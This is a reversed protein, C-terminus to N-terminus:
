PLAQGLSRVLKRRFVGSQSLILFFFFAKSPVFSPFGPKKGLIHLEEEGPFSSFETKFSFPSLFDPDEGPIGMRRDGNGDPATDKTAGGETGLAPATPYSAPPATSFEAM